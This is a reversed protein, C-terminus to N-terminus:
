AQAFPAKVRELTEAMGIPETRRALDAFSIVGCLAGDGDVCMIRAKQHRGMVKEAMRVDDEPRCTVVDHSMVKAVPTAPDGGFAVLRIALDRDTLTGIVKKSGHECVPLFGIDRLRMQDAADRCTEEPTVCAVDRCMIESCLM